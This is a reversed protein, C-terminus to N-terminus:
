EMRRKVSAICDSMSNKPMLNQTIKGKETAWNIAAAEDYFGGGLKAIALGNRTNNDIDRGVTPWNFAHKKVLASKKLKCIPTTAFSSLAGGATAAQTEPAEPETQTRETQPRTGPLAAAPSETVGDAKSALAPMATDAPQNSEDPAALAPPETTAAQFDHLLPAKLYALESRLEKLKAEKKIAKDIDGGDGMVEWREIVSEKDVINTAVKDWYVREDALAPNNHMDFQRAANERQAPACEDWGCPFFVDIVRLHLSEPLESFPRKYHPKLLDFLSEYKDNLM